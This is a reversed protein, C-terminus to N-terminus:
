ALLPPPGDIAADGGGPRQAILEDRLAVAAFGGRVIDPQPESVGGVLPECSRDSVQTLGGTVAVAVRDVVM